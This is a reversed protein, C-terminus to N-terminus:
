GEAKAKQRRRSFGVFFSIAMLAYLLWQVSDNVSDPLVLSAIGFCASAMFSLQRWPIQFNRSRKWDELEQDHIQYNTAAPSAIKEGQTDHPMAVPAAPSASRRAAPPQARSVTRRGFARQSDM